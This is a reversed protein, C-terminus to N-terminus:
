KEFPLQGNMELNLLALESDIEIELEDLSIKSKGASRNDLFKQFAHSARLAEVEREFDDAESLLFEQGDVTLLLVPEDQALKLLNNLDIQEQALDITKM